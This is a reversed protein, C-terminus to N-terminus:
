IRQITDVLGIVGGVGVYHVVHRLVGDDENGLGGLAEFQQIDLHGIDRPGGVPRPFLVGDGNIHGVVFVRYVDCGSEAFAVVIHLDGFICILEAIGHAISRRLRAFLNVDGDHRFCAENRGFKCDRATLLPPEDALGLSLAVAAPLRDIAQLDIQIIDLDSHLMLTYIGDSDFVRLVCPAYLGVHRLHNGAVRAHCAVSLLNGDHKFHRGTGTDGIGGSIGFACELGKGIVIDYLVTKGVLVHRTPM